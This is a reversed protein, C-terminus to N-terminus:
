YKFINLIDFYIQAQLKNFRGSNYYMSVIMMNLLRDSQRPTLKSIHKKMVM